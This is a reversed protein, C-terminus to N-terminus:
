ALLYREKPIDKEETQGHVLGEAIEVDAEGGEVAPEGLREEEFVELHM